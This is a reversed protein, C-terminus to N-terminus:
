KNAPRYARQLERMATAETEGRGILQDGLKGVRARATWRGEHHWTEVGFGQTEFWRKAIRIQNEDAQAGTGQARDSGTAEEAFDERTPRPQPDPDAYSITAANERGSGTDEETATHGHGLRPGYSAVAVGVEVAEDAGGVPERDRRGRGAEGPVADTESAQESSRSPDPGPYPEGSSREDSSMPWAIGAGGTRSVQDAALAVPDSDPADGPSAV